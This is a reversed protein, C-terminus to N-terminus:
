DEYLHLRNELSKIRKQMSDIQELLHNVAELGEMNIDLDYHLRILRELVPLRDAPIYSVQEVSSFVILDHEQLASIFSHEVQYHSCIENAPILDSKEM